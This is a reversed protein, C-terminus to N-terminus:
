ELEGKYQLEDRLREVEFWFKFEQFAMSEIYDKDPAVEVIALKDNNIFYEGRIEKYGIFWCYKAGTVYLQHQIQPYYDKPVIGREKADMWKIYGEAQTNLKATNQSSLLKIEIIIERDATGGDLSARMFPFSSHYCSFPQLPMGHEKELFERVYKEVNNGRDKIFKNTTDESKVGTSKEVLLQDRTKFRSVNMIAPVDSSGIGGHRWVLWLSRDASTVETFTM